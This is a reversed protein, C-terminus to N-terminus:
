LQVACSATASAHGTVQAAATDVVVESVVVTVAVVVREEVVAVAVVVEIVSM